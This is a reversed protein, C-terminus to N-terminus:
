GSVKFAPEAFKEKLFRGNALLAQTDNENVSVLIEQMKSDLLGLQEQLVDHATKGGGVSHMRRYGAPLKLYSQLTSPLYDTAMQRVTFRAGSLQPDGAALRPLAENITNAISKVSGFVDPEVRDRIRDLIQKLAHSIAAPDEGVDASLLAVNPKPTAFFGVGYLGVVNPLWFRDILGTLYLAVGALALACGVINRRSYLFMLVRNGGVSM